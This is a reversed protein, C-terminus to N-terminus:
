GSHNEITGGCMMKIPTWGRLSNLENTAYPNAAQTYQNLSKPYQDPRALLNKIKYGSDLPLIRLTGANPGPGNEM